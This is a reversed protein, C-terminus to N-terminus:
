KAKKCASHIKKYAQKFFPLLFLDCILFVGLVSSIPYFFAVIKGFGLFSVAFPFIVSLWQVVKENKILGRLSNSLAFVISFLTTTCGILILIQMLVKHGGSFLSLLPMDMSFSEPSHLLVINTVLLILGLVLASLFSVRAKQKRNLSQGMHALVVGSNATNLIVYMVSYYLSLFNSPITITQNGGKILLLIESILLVVVMFPVLILNAKELSGLGHKIIYFCVFIIITITLIAIVPGTFVILEQSGAFMAAALVVCILINLINSFKSTKLRAVAREGYGLMFRFLAWFLFFAIFVGVFSIKGFRSFFVVIEKGSLFGSGIVTGVTVLFTLFSKNM